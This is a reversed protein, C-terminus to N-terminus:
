AADDFAASLAGDAFAYATPKVDQWGPEGKEKITIPVRRESGVYAAINPTASVAARFAELSALGNTALWGARAEEFTQLLVWLSLDGITLEAVNGVAPSAELLAAIKTLFSVCRGMDEQWEVRWGGSTLPVCRSAEFLQDVAAQAALGEGCLGHKRGIHRCIAASEALEQVDEDAYIPMYGLAATPRRARWSVDNSWHFVSDYNAGAHELLVRPLEGLGRLVFYELTAAPADAGQPRHQLTVSTSTGDANGSITTHKSM